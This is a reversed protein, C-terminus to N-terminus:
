VLLITPLTLHTYSVPQPLLHGSPRRQLRTIGKRLSPDSFGGELAWWLLAVPTEKHQLINLRLNGQSLLHQLDTPRTRYHAQLLLAFCHELLKDDRVLEAPSITKLQCHQPRIDAVNEPLTAKFLFMENCLTELADQQLWRIPASLTLQQHRYGKRKLWDSLRVAFGRGAGEYGHVTSALVIRPNQEILSKLQPLPLRAAEDVIVLDSEPRTTLLKDPPYFEVSKSNSGTTHAKLHKFLVDTARRAPGCVIIKPLVCDPSKVSGPLLQDDQVSVAELWEAALMGLLASKGRGRDATIISIQSTNTQFSNILLDILRRQDDFASFALTKKNQGANNGIQGPEPDSLHVNQDQHNRSRVLQRRQVCKPIASDTSINSHKQLLRAIRQMFEDPPLTQDPTTDDPKRRSAQSQSALDTPTAWDRRSFPPQYVHPWDEVPPTVLILFGAHVLTGSIAAFANADFTKLANFVIIRQETGLYRLAQAQPIANVAPLPHRQLNAESLAEGLWILEGDTSKASKAAERTRTIDESFKRNCLSIERYLAEIAQTRPGSIWILDRERSAM